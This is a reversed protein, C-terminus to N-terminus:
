VGFGAKLVLVSIVLNMFRRRDVFPVRPLGFSCIKGLYTTM